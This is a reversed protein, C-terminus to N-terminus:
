ATTCAPSWASIPPATCRSSAGPIRISRGGTRDAALDDTQFRANIREVEAAHAGAAGSLGAAQKASPEAVQLLTVRGCSAPIASSLLGGAGSLARRHGQHLGLARRRRGPLRSTTSASIAARIQARTMAIERCGQLWRPPWEISIPYPAVHCVHGQLTVTMHERDIQCEIARDVTDLLNHCHYCPIFASYTPRCCAVVAARAEVSVRRLDRRKAVARALVARDHRASHARRLLRPLLAFHFDQILVVPNDSDAEQSWADAFNQNVSQYCRWDSERFAPRVYALHCLPWLGENSFGFYYGEEEEAHCGSAACRTARRMPRCRSGITRTSWAAIPLRRQRARDLRRLLRAHDTRAGDGHRQRSGPRQCSGRRRARPQLARPELGHHGSQLRASAGRGAALAQPTWNERYDIELRQTEEADRLLKRIQSLIPLSFGPSRADDLLRGSRIDSLLLTAWRRLLWWVVLSVVLALGLTSVGVFAVVFRRWGSQSSDAFGLDYALVVRFPRESLTRAGFESIQLRGDPGQIIRNSDTVAAREPQCVIARSASGTEGLKPATLGVSSSPLWTRNLALSRRSVRGCILPTM